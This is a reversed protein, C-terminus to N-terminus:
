QPEKTPTFSLTSYVTCLLAGQTTEHTATHAPPQTRLTAAFTRRMHWRIFAVVFDFVIFSRRTEVGGSGRVLLRWWQSVTAAVSKGRIWGEEGVVCEVDRAWAVKAEM